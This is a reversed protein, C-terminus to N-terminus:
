QDSIDYVLLILDANAIELRLDSDKSTDILETFVDKSYHCMDPPLVVKKLTKVTETPMESMIACILSTKGANELIVGYSVM